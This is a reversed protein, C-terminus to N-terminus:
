WSLSRFYGFFCGSTPEIGCADLSHKRKRIIARKLSQIWKQWCEKQGLQSAKRTNHSSHLLLLLTKNSLTSSSFTLSSQYKNKNLSFKQLQFHLLYSNFSNLYYKFGLQLQLEVKRVGLFIYRVSFALFPIALHKNAAFLFFFSDYFKPEKRLRVKLASM